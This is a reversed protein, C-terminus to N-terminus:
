DTIAPLASNVLRVTGAVGFNIADAGPHANAALIAQRLSGPGASNLNLVSFTSPVSRDELPEITLFAARRHEPRRSSSLPMLRIERLAPTAVNVSADHPLYAM